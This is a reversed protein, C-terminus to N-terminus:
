KYVRKMHETHRQVLSETGIDRRYWVPGSICQAAKEAKQEADNLSDGLGLVAIARSKTTFIKGQNEYVSACYYKANNKIIQKENIKIESDKISNNPYGKPVLYKVVTNKNLFKPLKLNEDSISQFIASLPSDLLALVNMAEPDGFRSNFEILKAGKKTLMLQTYLVGKFQANEKRLADIISQSIEKGIELDQEKMFPLLAGTSYAGMGGTNPGKDGEYARKHDQVPPMLAINKGDTFLQISLEEGDLKEELLVQGDEKLLKNIYKLACESNTFHEGSVMVGKGGTLGLPKIVIELNLDKIFKVAQSENEIIEFIPSGKVNHKKMLRRAYGKDWEIRAASKTPSCIPIGTKELADSIGAALVADPSAFALDIKENKVCSQVLKPSTIDTLYFKKALKSIGPNKKSMIAYLESHKAIQEAIIHERAGDGVLLINM